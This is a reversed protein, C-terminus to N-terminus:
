VVRQTVFRFRAGGEPGREVAVDGGHDRAIERVFALGLGTGKERTTFFPLFIKDTLEAPVGPGSDRVEWVVGEHAAPDVRAALVVKGSPGAAAIANKALNLLARRVQVRDIHSRVGSECEVSLSPGGGQGAGARGVEAVEDLLERAAITEMVPAPRRAFELFDTVVNKLYGIERELRAVEALREDQGALSERLLGAYLELGGLPNRVEHAIGALMMRMREDRARLAVRMEDLRAALYGIEDRTEVRVRGDLDGGGIREAALALRELPGTMRRSLWAAFLAILAVVVVGGYLLRRRFAALADIYQPSAEVVAYGAAPNGIRAYGRKYPLGDRGMFLPSATPQGLSAKQIEPVDAGLEHAQAGLALLHESDGRATLDAAVLLVRRVLLRQRAQEVRYRLNAYTSSGEDGAAISTLQEPLVLMAVSAAATALRRGLENELVQRAVEHAAAGFLALALIAPGLMAVLLKALL